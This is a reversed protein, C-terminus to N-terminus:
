GRCAASGRCGAHVHSRPPVSRLPGFVGEPASSSDPQQRPLALSIGAFACAIFLAFQPLSERSPLFDHLPPIFFFDAILVAAIAAMIGPGLGGFRAAAAVALILVFLQATHEGAEALAFTAASAVALSLIATGYRLVPAQPAQRRYVNLFNKETSLAQEAM